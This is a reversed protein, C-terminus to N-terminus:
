AAEDPQGFRTLLTKSLEAIRQKVRPQHLDRQMFLGVMEHLAAKEEEFPDSLPRLPQYAHNQEQLKLRARYLVTNGKKGCRRIYGNSELARIYSLAYHYGAGSVRALEQVSFGPNTTKLTRWMRTVLEANRSPAAQENYRYQGRGARILEGSNVLASARTRVRDKEAENTAGLAAYLMKNSFVEQTAGLNRAAERLEPMKLENM